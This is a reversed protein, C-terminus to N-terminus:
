RLLLMKLTREYDPTVLRCFYVGSSVPIGAGDRGDWGVAKQGGSQVQDVLTRVPRSAVDYVRLTIRGGSAPVDYRILTVPNFPNPVNQYLRYVGAPETEEADNQGAATEYAGMDVSDGQVRTNGDLDTEPLNPANNDGADIAPSNVLLHLDGNTGDAFLPDEDINSGGDTGVGPNWGPGSGGCGSVLSHLIVPYSDENHIESGTAASDGWMITNVVTPNCNRNEMAGGRVSASNGTSTTNTLVAGGYNFCMGGGYSAQNHFFVVNSLAHSSVQNFMGGGEPASNGIFIVNISTANSSFLCMGGGCDSAHNDEFTV